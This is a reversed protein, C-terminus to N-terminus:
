KSAPGAAELYGRVAADELQEFNRFFRGIALFPSPTDLFVVESKQELAALTDEPLVPVAAIIRKAGANKALETAAKMTSGTAVGDDVLICIKGALDALPRGGRYKKIRKKIELLQRQIEERLYKKSSYAGSAPDLYVSGDEAVAGIALEPNGPAGLKRTVILDLPANLKKAIEFGVPVGGRPLALVIVDGASKLEPFDRELADALLQGAETRDAFEM